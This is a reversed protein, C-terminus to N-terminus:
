KWVDWLCDQYNFRPLASHHFDIPACNEHGLNHVLYNRMRILFSADMFVHGYHKKQADILVDMGHDNCERVIYTALKRSVAYKLKDAFVLSRVAALAPFPNEELNIDLVRTRVCQLFGAEYLDTVKGKANCQLAIAEINLFTTKPLNERL